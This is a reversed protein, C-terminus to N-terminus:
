VARQPLQELLAKEMSIRMWPVKNSSVAARKCIKVKSHHPINRAM